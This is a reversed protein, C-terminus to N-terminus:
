AVWDRLLGCAGDFGLENGHTLARLAGRNLRRLSTLDWGIPAFGRFSQKRAIATPRSKRRPGLLHLSM